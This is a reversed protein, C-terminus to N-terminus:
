NCIKQPRDGPRREAGWAPAGPPMRAARAPGRNRRGPGTDARRPHGPHSFSAAARPGPRRGPGGPHDPHGSSVPDLTRARAGGAQGLRSLGPRRGTTNRAGPRRMFRCWTNTMVLDPGARGRPRSTGKAPVLENIRTAMTAPSDAVGPGPRPGRTRRVERDPAGAERAPSQGHFRGSGVGHRAADYALWRVAHQGPALAFAFFKQEGAAIARVRITGGGSLTIVLHEVDAAATGYTVQPSGGWGMVATGQPTAVSACGSSGNGGGRTVLCEGWPGVYATVSWAHGGATGSGILHTARPLGTQGPRLWLNVTATGDPDNFPIASALEGHASYATVRSVVAHVPVGYAVLRTGYVTVPHLTLVTGDALRVTVYRVAASM